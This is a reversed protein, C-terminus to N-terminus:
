CCQHYHENREQREGNEQKIKKTYEQQFEEEKESDLDKLFVLPLLMGGQSM